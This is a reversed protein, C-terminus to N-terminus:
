QRLLVEIMGKREPKLPLFVLHLIKGCLRVSAHKATVRVPASRNPHRNVPQDYASQQLHIRKVTGVEFDLTWGARPPVQVQKFDCFLDTTPQRADKKTVGAAPARDISSRLLELFIRVPTVVDQEVLVEVALVARSQTGAM